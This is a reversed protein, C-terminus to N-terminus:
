HLAKFNFNLFNTKKTFTTRIIIIFITTNTLNFYHQYSHKNKNFTSRRFFRFCKEKIIKKIPYDINQDSLFHNLYKSLFSFNSFKCKFIWANSSHAFMLNFFLYPPQFHLLISLSLSVSHFISFLHLFTSPEYQWSFLRQVILKILHKHNILNRSKHRWTVRYWHGAM